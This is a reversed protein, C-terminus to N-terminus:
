YTYPFFGERETFMANIFGLEAQPKSTASSRLKLKNADTDALTGMNGESTVEVRSSSVRLACEDM